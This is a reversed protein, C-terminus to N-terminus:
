EAIIDYTVHFTPDSVDTYTKHVLLSSLGKESLNEDIFAIRNENVEYGYIKFKGKQFKIESILYINTEYSEPNDLFEKWTMKLVSGILDETKYEKM